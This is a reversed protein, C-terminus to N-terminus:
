SSTRERYAPFFGTREPVGRDTTLHDYTTQQFVHRSVRVPRTQPGFGQKFRLLEDEQGSVGGGLNLCQCGMDSGMDAARDIAAKSAIGRLPHEITGSLHYQVVGHSVSFLSCAILQGELHVNVLQYNMAPQQALVRFYEHSFFYNNSANVRLMTDTYVTHFVEVDATEFPRVTLELGQKVAKKLDRKHNNRYLKRREETTLSLDIVVTVGIPTIVGEPLTPETFFPNYRVFASVLGALESERQWDAYLARAARPDGIVLPSPYGYSMALDAHQQEGNKVRRRILPILLGSEGASAHFFVFEGGLRAAELRNYDALHYVDHRGFEALLRTFEATDDSYM